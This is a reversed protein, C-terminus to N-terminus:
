SWRRGHLFRPPIDTVRAADWPQTWGALDFLGDLLAATFGWVYLDGLTFAPGTLGAPHRWTSRNAPDLLDAVDPQHVAAIEGRDVPVLDTPVRWRAVVGAVDFGSARVHADPLGGLVAVTVPDIGVEERAERLAADIPDRDSPEIAGGPFAIQGAHSRLRASKEVLVVRVPPEDTLLILVAARRGVTVPRAAVVDAVAAPDALRTALLGFPDPTM